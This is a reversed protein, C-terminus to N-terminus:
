HVRHFEQFKRSTSFGRCQADLIGEFSQSATCLSTVFWEGRLRPGERTYETESEKCSVYINVQVVKGEEPLSRPGHVEVDWSEEACNTWLCLGWSENLCPYGPLTTLEASATPCSCPEQVDPGWTLIDNCVITDFHVIYLNFYVHILWLVIIEQINCTSLKVVTM